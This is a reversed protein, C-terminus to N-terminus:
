SSPLDAGGFNSRAWPLSPEIVSRLPPKLGVEGALARRGRVVCEVPAEPRLSGDAFSAPFEEVFDAFRVAEEIEGGVFVLAKIEGSRVGGADGLKAALEDRPGIV